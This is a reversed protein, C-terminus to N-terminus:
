IQLRPARGEFKHVHLRQHICALIGPLVLRQAPHIVRDHSQADLLSFEVPVLVVIFVFEEIHDLAPEHNVQFAPRDLQCRPLSKGDRFAHHM